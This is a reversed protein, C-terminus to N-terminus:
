PNSPVDVFATNGSVCSRTWTPSTITLLYQYAGSSDIQPAKPVILQLEVVTNHKRHSEFDINTFTANDIAPKKVEQWGLSTLRTKYVDLLQDMSLATEYRRELKNRQLSSGSVCQSRQSKLTVSSPASDLAMLEPIKLYRQSGVLFLVNQLVFIGVLIGVAIVAIRKKSRRKKEKAV